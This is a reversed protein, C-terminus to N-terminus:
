GNIVTIVFMFTDQHDSLRKEYRELDHDSLLKRFRARMNKSTLSPADFAQRLKEMTRDLAWIDDEIERVHQHWREALGLSDALIAEDDKDIGISRLEVLIGHLRTMVRYLRELEEPAEDLKDKIKKLAITGKIAVDVLAVSSAVVGVVEM